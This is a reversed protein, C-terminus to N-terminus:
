WWESKCGACLPEEGDLFHHGPSRHIGLPPHYLFGHGRGHTLVSSDGGVMARQTKRKGELTEALM